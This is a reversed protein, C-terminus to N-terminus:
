DNTMTKEKVNCKQNEKSIDFSNDLIIILLKELVKSRRTIERTEHQGLHTQKTNNQKIM